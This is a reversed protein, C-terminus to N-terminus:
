GGSLLLAEGTLKNIAKLTNEVQVFHRQHHAILFRFGDGLKIKIFRSISIPIRTELITKEAKELLQLLLYEQLLFEELVIRSDIDSSPRHDKPSKMKKTVQGNKQPLMSKTFYDGLWGPRYFEAPRHAPKILAAKMVPLYYRGYSNLHEIVQAVSWKNEAPQRLLLEPDQQLLLKTQLVIQRTDANLDELLQASNIKKM